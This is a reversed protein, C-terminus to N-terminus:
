LNYTLLHFSFVGSYSIRGPLQAEYLSTELVITIMVDYSTTQHNERMFRSQKLM